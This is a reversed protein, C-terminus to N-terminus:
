LNISRALHQKVFSPLVMRLANFFRLKTPLEHNPVCAVLMKGNNKGGMMDCFAKPANKLGSEFTEVLKLKGSAALGLLERLAGTFENEYNFVLYRDRKINLKLRVEEAQNGLPPPYQKSSNYMDIQGCIIVQANPQMFKSVITDSLNGGVNDFYISAKRGALAKQLDEELSNSKYNVASDFGLDAVLRQGKEDSGCIGVVYSGKQKALQGVVTGVAGGGGSIIVTDSPKPSAEGLIGFFASLGTQGVGGLFYTVPVLAAVAAPLVKLNKSGEVSLGCYEKWEWSDFWELVIDGSKM